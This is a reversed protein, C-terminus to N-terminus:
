TPAVALGLHWSDDRGTLGLWRGSGALSHLTRRLRLSTEGTPFEGTKFVTKIL